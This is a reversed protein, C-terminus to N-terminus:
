VVARCNSTCYPRARREGCASGSHSM